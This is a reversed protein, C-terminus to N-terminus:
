WEISVKKIGIGLHRTDSGQNVSQPSQPYPVEIEIWNGVESGDVNVTLEQFTSAVNFLRQFGQSRFIFKENANSGFARAELTMKYKKPLSKAFNLRVVKGTSWAGWAEPPLFLGEAKSLESPQWHKLELNIERTGHGGVISFQEFHRQNEFEKSIFHGNMVLASSKGSANLLDQTYPSHTGIKQITVRPDDLYFLIRSLEIPNDGAVVLNSIDSKSLYNKAILGIRDYQDAVM